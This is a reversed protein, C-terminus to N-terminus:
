FPFVGQDPAALSVAPRKGEGIYDIVESAEMKTLERSSTLGYTVGIHERLSDDTWGARHADGFLKRLQANTVLSSQPAPDPDPRPAALAGPVEHEPGIIEGTRVDVSVSEGEIERVDTARATFREAPEWENGVDELDAPIIPMGSLLDQFAKRWAHRYARTEAMRPAWLKEVASNRHPEAKSAKGTGWFPLSIGRRKIGVRVVIDNPGYGEAERRSATYFDPETEGDYVGSVLALHRLGDISPRIKGEYIDIEGAVPNLGTREVYVVLTERLAKDNTLRALDVFRGAEERPVLGASDRIAIATSPQVEAELRTLMARDRGASEGAGEKRAIRNALVLALTQSEIATLGAAELSYNARRYRDALSREYRPKSGPDLGHTGCRLHFVGDVFAVLLDAGCGCVETQARHELGKRTAERQRLAALEAEREETTM